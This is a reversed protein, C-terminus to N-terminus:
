FPHTLINNTENNSVLTTITVSVFHNVLAISRDAAGTANSSVRLVRKSARWCSDSAHDHVASQVRRSHAIRKCITFVIVAGFKTTTAM